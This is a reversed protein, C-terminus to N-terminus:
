GRWCRLRAKAPGHALAAVMIVGVIALEQTRRSRLVDGAAKLGILSWVIRNHHRVTRAQRVPGIAAAAPAAGPATQADRGSRVERVM